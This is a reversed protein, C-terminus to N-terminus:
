LFRLFFRIFFTKQKFCNKLIKDLNKTAEDDDDDDDDDDNDIMMM